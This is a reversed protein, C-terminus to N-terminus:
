KKQRNIKDLKEERSLNKMQAEAKQANARTRFRRSYVLEVPRRGRTYKAGVASSNHEEVRRGIDTTVGTYLTDDACRVVYLHYM